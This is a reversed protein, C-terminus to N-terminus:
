PRSASAPAWPSSRDRGISASPASRRWCRRPWANPTSCTAASSCCGSNTGAWARSRTGAACARRSRGRSSACCRTARVDFVGIAGPARGDAALLPVGSYFRVRPGAAVQPDEHFRLDFRADSVEPPAGSHLVECCFRSDRPLLAIPLNGHLALARHQGGELLTIAAFRAACLQAALEAIEAFVDHREPAVASASIPGM